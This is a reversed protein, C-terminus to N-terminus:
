KKIPSCTFSVDEFPQAGGAYLKSHQLQGMVIGGASECAAATPYNGFGAQPISGTPQSGLWTVILLYIM